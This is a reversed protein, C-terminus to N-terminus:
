AVGVADGAQKWLMYDTDYVSYVISHADDLAEDISPRYSRNKHPLEPPMNRMMAFGPWDDEIRELTLTYVDTCVKGDVTLWDVQKGFHPLLTINSRLRRVTDSWCADQAIACREATDNWYYRHNPNQARLYWWASKFRDLPDRLITFPECKDLLDFGMAEARHVFLELPAHHEMGHAWAPRPCVSKVSMGGCKPIHILLPSKNM